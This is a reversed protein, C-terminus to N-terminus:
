FNKFAVFLKQTYNHYFIANKEWKLALESM